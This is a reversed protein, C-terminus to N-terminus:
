GKILSVLLLDLSFVMLNMFGEKKGDIHLTNFDSVFIAEAAKMEPLAKANNRFLDTKTVKRIDAVRRQKLFAGM